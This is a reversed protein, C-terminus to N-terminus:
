SDILQQTATGDLHRERVAVCSPHFASSQNLVLAASSYSDVCGPIYILWRECLTAGWPASSHTAQVCFNLRGTELDRKDSSKFAGEAVASCCCICLATDCKSPLCDVLLTMLGAVVGVPGTNGADAEIGILTFLLPGCFPFLPPTIIEGRYM